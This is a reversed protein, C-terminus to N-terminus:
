FHGHYSEFGADSGDLAVLDEEAVLLYSSALQIHTSIQEAMHPSAAAPSQSGVDGKREAWEGPFVLLTGGPM